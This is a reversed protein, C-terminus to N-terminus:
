GANPAQLRIWQVLLPMGERRLEEETFALPGTPDPHHLLTLKEM